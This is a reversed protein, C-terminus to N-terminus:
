IVISTKLLMTLSVACKWIQNMMLLISKPDNLDMEKKFLKNSGVVKYNVAASLLGSIVAVTYDMRDASKVSAKFKIETADIGEGDAEPDISISNFLGDTEVDNLALTSVTLKVEKSTKWDVLSNGSWKQIEYM